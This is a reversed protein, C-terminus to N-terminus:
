RRSICDDSFCFCEEVHNKQMSIIYYIQAAAKGGIPKRGYPNKHAYILQHAHHLSAARRAHMKRRENGNQYFFDYMEKRCCPHLLDHEGVDDSLVLLMPNYLNSYITHGLHLRVSANCDITVGASLFECPKEFAEAFFDVVQGGDMDIVTITQGQKVDIKLGSCAQILYERIM